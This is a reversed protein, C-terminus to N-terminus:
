RWADRLTARHTELWAPFTEAWELRMRCERQSYTARAERDAAIFDEAVGNVFIAPLVLLLADGLLDAEGPQPPAIHGYANLFMRARELDLGQEVLPPTPSPTSSPADDEWRLGAFAFLAYALELIRWDWRMADFDYIGCVRDAEFALNHPQYDGHIHVSPLDRLATLREEATTAWQAAERALRRLGVAIPRSIGMGRSAETLRALYVQAIALPARERPWRHIPGPYAVSAQHLAALTQAAATLYTDESPGDTVFRRGPMYTQIEYIANEIVYTFGGGQQPDTLPVVPVVAYTTGDPRSLLTPAPLGQTALYRMFAHRAVIDRESLGLFQRRVVVPAQVVELIPHAVPAAASFRDAASATFGIITWLEPRYGWHLLVTAMEYRAMDVYEEPALAKAMRPLSVTHRGAVQAMPPLAAEAGPPPTDFASTDSLM